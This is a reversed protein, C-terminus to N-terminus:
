RSKRKEKSPRGQLSLNPSWQVKLPRIQNSEQFDVVDETPIDKFNPPMYSRRNDKNEPEAFNSQMPTAPIINFDPVQEQQNQDPQAVVTSKPRPKRTNSKHKEHNSSQMELIYVNVKTEHIDM